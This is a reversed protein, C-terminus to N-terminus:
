LQSAAAEDLVVTVNPHRQLVSAPVDPTVPRNVTQRIAEAKADGFALLIIRKAAMISAIGMTYAYRPVEDQNDFFRANAAITSATLAVRHTHSDFSTGPENFGIHGNRGIGLIQLDIPHQALIEDYRRTVEGADPNTGDPFFSEKFPKANFLHEQMFYHYSQPDTPKLGVYEDLNVSMCQSFDLASERIQKYLDLPTSGTALGMVQLQDHQALKSVIDFARASAEAATKATIIKM